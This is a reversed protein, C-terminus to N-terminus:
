GEATDQWGFFKVAGAQSTFHEVMDEQPQALGQNTCECDWDAGHFSLQIFIALV